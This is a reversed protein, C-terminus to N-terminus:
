LNGNGGVPATSGSHRHSPTSPGPSSPAPSISPTPSSTPAPSAGGAPTSRTTAHHARPLPGIAPLSPPAQVNAAPAALPTVPTAPEAAGGTAPSLARGLVFGGVLVALACIM